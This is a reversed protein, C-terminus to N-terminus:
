HSQGTKSKAALNKSSEKSSSERSEPASTPSKSGSEKFDIPSTGADILERFRVQSLTAAKEEFGSKPSANGDEESKPSSVPTDERLGLELDGVGLGSMQSLTAAVEEKSGSKPWANIDRGKDRSRGSSISTNEEIVLDSNALAPKDGRGAELDKGTRSNGTPNQKNIEQKREISKVIISATGGIFAIAAIGVGFWAPVILGGAFFGVSAGAAGITLLALFADPKWDTKAAINKKWSGSDNLDVSDGLGLPKKRPSPVLQNDLQNEVEGSEPAHTSSQRQHESSVRRIELDAEQPQNSNVVKHFASLSPDSFSEQGSQANLETGTEVPIITEDPITQDPASPTAARSPAGIYPNNRNDLGGFELNVNVAENEKFEFKVSPGSSFEAAGAEDDSSEAPKSRLVVLQTNIM